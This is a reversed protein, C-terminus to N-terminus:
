CAAAEKFGNLGYSLEILQQEKPTSPKWELCEARYPCSSCNLPSEIPFFIHEAVAREVTEVLDGLRSADQPGRTTALFQAKPTKTKTLVGYEVSPWSGVSEAVAHAYCTAQLSTDVEQQSYLRKSTKLERVTIDDDPGYILDAVAVLPRELYEGSSNTLPALIQQEVIRIHTPPPTALYVDILAMAQEILGDRHERAGYQVVAENERREYEDLFAWRVSEIDTGPGGAREQRQLQRHYDALAAHVAGGFVLGSAVSDVPLRLVRQFYYQLPCRQYQSVASYSVHPRGAM